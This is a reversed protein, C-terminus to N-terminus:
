GAHGAEDALFQRIGRVQADVQAPNGPRKTHQLVEAADGFIDMRLDHAGEHGKVLVCSAEVDAYVCREEFPVIM